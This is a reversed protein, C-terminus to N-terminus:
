KKAILAYDQFGYLINNLKEINMNYQNIFDVMSPIMIENVDLKSLEQEKSVKSSELLEITNFGELKLFYKITEPHIPWRHTYDKFFTQSLAFFSLPNVTEFILAGGNVLVRYAEKILSNIYDFSLHEIVQIAIVCSVSSDKLSKLYSLGDQKQFMLNKEKLIECMGSDTEVGIANINEQKLLELLEGRGAGIDVVNDNKLNLTKIIDVYKRLRKKIEESSGRYRDELFLYGYDLNDNNKGTNNLLNNQNSNVNQNGSFEKIIRQLSDLSSFIANLKVQVNNDRSKNEKALKLIYNEHYSELKKEQNIEAVQQKDSLEELKRNISELDTDIKRILELFNANDRKDVYKAVENLYRVTDGNFNKQAETYNILIGAIFKQIRRKIKLVIKGVLGKRPTTVLSLDQLILPYSYNLNINRLYDSKLLDGLEADNSFDLKIPNFKLLTSGNEKVEKTVKDALEEYLGEFSNKNAINM